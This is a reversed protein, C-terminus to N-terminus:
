MKPLSHFAREQTVSPHSKFSPPLSPAGRNWLPAMWARSIKAKSRTSESAVLGTPLNVDLFMLENDGWSPGVPRPKGAKVTRRITGRQTRELTEESQGWGLVLAQPPLAQGPLHNM